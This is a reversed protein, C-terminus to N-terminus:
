EEDYDKRNEDDFDFGRCDGKYDPYEEHNDSISKVWIGVIGIIVIVMFGYVGVM